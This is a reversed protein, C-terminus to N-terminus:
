RTCRMMMKGPRIGAAVGTGGTAGTTVVPGAGRQRGTRTPHRGAASLAREGVEDSHEPGATVSVTLVPLAGVLLILALREPTDLATSIFRDVPNGIGLARQLIWSSAIAAIATAPAM